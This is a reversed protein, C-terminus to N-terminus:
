YDGWLARDESAQRAREDSVRDDAIDRMTRLWRESRAEFANEFHQGTRHVTVDLKPRSRGAGASIAPSRPGHSTPKTRCGTSPRRAPKEGEFKVPTMTARDLWVLPVHPGRDISLLDSRPKTTPKPTFRPDGPADAAAAEWQRLAKYLADFDAPTNGSADLLPVTDAPLDTGIPEASDAPAQDAFVDPAAVAGSFLSDLARAEAENLGLPIQDTVEAATTSKQRILHRAKRDFITTTM